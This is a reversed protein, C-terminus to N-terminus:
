RFQAMFALMFAALWCDPALAVSDTPFVGVFPPPGREDVKTLTEYLARPPGVIAVLFVSAIFFSAVFFVGGRRAVFASVPRMAAIRSLETTAMKVLSRSPIM